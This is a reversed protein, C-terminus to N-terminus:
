ALDSITLAYDVSKKHTFGVWAWGTNNDRQQYVYVELPGINSLSNSPINIFFIRSGTDIMTVVLQNM